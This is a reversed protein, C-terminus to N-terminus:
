IQTEINKPTFDIWFRVKTYRPKAHYVFALGGIILYRVEHQALLEILDEFDEITDM